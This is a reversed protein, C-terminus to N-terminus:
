RRWSDTPDREPMRSPAQLEGVAAHGFWDLWRTVFSDRDNVDIPTFPWACQIEGLIPAIAQYAEPSPDMDHPKTTYSINSFGSHMFATEFWRYERDTKADCFWLSHARGEYGRYSPIRIGIAAHAVIDFPPQSYEDVSRDISTEQIFQIMLKADNLTWTRVRLHGDDTAHPAHKSINDALLDVIGAFSTAAVGYLRRRRDEEARQTARQRAEEAKQEAAAANARELPNDM